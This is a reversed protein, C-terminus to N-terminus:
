QAKEQAEFLERLEADTCRDLEARTVYLQVIKGSRRRLGLVVRLWSKPTARAQAALEAAWDPQTV